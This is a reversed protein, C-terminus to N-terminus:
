KWFASSRWLFTLCGPNIKNKPKADSNEFIAAQKAARISPLMFPTRERPTSSSPDIIIKNEKDELIGNTYDSLRGKSM